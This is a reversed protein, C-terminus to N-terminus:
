GVIELVCAVGLARKASVLSGGGVNKLPCIAVVRRNAAVTVVHLALGETMVHHKRSSDIILWLEAVATVEEDVGIVM